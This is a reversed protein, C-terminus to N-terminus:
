REKRYARWDGREHTSDAFGEGDETQMYEQSGDPLYFAFSEIIGWRNGNESEIWIPKGVMKHLEEWSLAPNYDTFEIKLNEMVAHNVSKKIDLYYRLYFLADRQMAPIAHYECGDDGDALDSYPCGSVCVCKDSTCMELAKIVEELTRM